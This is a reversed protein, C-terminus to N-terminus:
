FLDVGGVMIKVRNLPVVPVGFFESLHCLAIWIEGFHHRGSSIAQMSGCNTTVFYRVRVIYRPFQPALCPWCLSLTCFCFAECRSLTLGLPASASEPSRSQGLHFACPLCSLRSGNRPVIWPDNFMLSANHWFVVFTMRHLWPRSHAPNIILAWGGVNWKRLSRVRYVLLRVFSLRPFDVLCTLNLPQM